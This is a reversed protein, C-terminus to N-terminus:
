IKKQKILLPPSPINNNKNDKWTLSIHFIKYNDNLKKDIDNDEVKIQFDHEDNVYFSDVNLFGKDVSIKEQEAIKIFKNYTELLIDNFSEAQVYFKNYKSITFSKSIFLIRYRIKILNEFIIM